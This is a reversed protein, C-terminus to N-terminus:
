NISTLGFLYNDEIRTINDTGTYEMDYTFLRDEDVPLDDFTWRLLDGYALPTTGTTTGSLTPYECASGTVSWKCDLYKYVEQRDAFSLTKDFIMIEAVNADWAAAGDNRSGIYATVGNTDMNAKGNAASTVLNNNRRIERLTNFEWVNYSATDTGWANNIQLSQPAEWRAADGGTPLRIALRDATPMHFAFQDGLSNTKSVIFVNLDDIVQDDFLSSITMQDGNFYAYTKDNETIIEPKSGDVLQVANKGKGSKDRWESILNAGNYTMTSLDSADLWLQLSETNLEANAKWKDNLYEYVADMEIETLSRNYVIIEGVEGYFREGNGRNLMDYLASTPINIQGINSDILENDVYLEQVLGMRGMNLTVIDWGGVPIGSLTNSNASYSNTADVRLMPDQASIRDLISMDSSRQDSKMLVFYTLENNESSLVADGLLKNDFRLMPQNSYYDTKFIPGNAAAQSIIKGKGSKDSWQTVRDLIDKTITATDNVDLWLDLGHIDDPSDVERLNSATYGNPVIDTISADDISSLGINNLDLLVTYKQTDYSAFDKNVTMNTPVYAATVTLSALYEKPDIAHYGIDDGIRCSVVYSGGSLGSYTYTAVGNAATQETSQPAGDLYFTVDYGALDIGTTYNSVNCTLDTSESDKIEIDSLNGADVISALYDIDFEYTDEIPVNNSDQMVNGLADTLAFYARYTGPVNDATGWHAVNWLTSLDIYSYPVVTQPGNYVETVNNWHTGNDHQTVLLVRADINFDLKHGVASPRHIKSLVSNIEVRDENNSTTDLRDARIIIRRNTATRWAPFTTTDITVICEEYDFSDVNSGYLSALDCYNGGTFTAGNYVLVELRPVNNGNEQSALDSFRSIGLNLEISADGTIDSGAMSYEESDISGDTLTGTVMFDDVIWGDDDNNKTTGFNFRFKFDDEVTFANLNVTEQQWNVQSNFSQLGTLLNSNQGGASGGRCSDDYGGNPTIQSWTNGADPSTQIIGCDDNGNTTHYMNYRHWFSAEVTNYVTLDVTEKLTLYDLYKSTSYLGVEETAWCGSGSYCGNYSTKSAPTGCEWPAGGISSELSSSDFGSCVGDDFTDNVIIYPVHFKKTGSEVDNSYIILGSKLDVDSSHSYTTGVTEIDYDIYVDTVVFTEIGTKRYNGNMDDAWIFYKYTGEQNTQTFTYTYTDDGSGSMDVYWSTGDPATINVKVDRVAENDSVYGSIDVPNTLRAPNPNANVLVIEPTVIDEAPTVTRLIETKKDTVGAYYYNAVDDGITCNINEVGLSNDAWTYNAWGTVDTTNTGMLGTENYFSVTYGNLPTALSEDVVKCSMMTSNTVHISSPDLKSEYISSFGYLTLEIKNTQNWLGADKGYISFNVLGLSNFESASLTNISYNTWDNTILMTRNSYSGLGNHELYANQMGDHGTWRAYATLAQGRYIAGGNPVDATGNNIGWSTYQPALLYDTLVNLGVDDNDFWSGGRCEDTDWDRNYDIGCRFAQLPANSTIVRNWTRTILNSTSTDERYLEIWSTGDYYFMYIRNGGGSYPNFQCTLSVTDGVGVTTANLITTKVDEYDGRGGRCNGIGSIDAEKFTTQFSEGEPNYVVAEGCDGGWYASCSMPDLIRLDPDLAIYWPRAEVYSTKNNNITYNIYSRGLSYVAPSEEPFIIGYIVKSGNTLNTWTLLQTNGVVELTANEYRSVNFEVPVVETYSFTTVEPDNSYITVISGKGGRWPDVTHVVNRIIDFKNNNDVEFYSSMTYNDTGNYATVIMDYTGEISINTYNFSYIGNDIEIIQALPTTYTTSVNNPTIIEIEVNADSVLYGESDLVVSTITVNDDTSYVSKDTNITALGIEFIQESLKPVIWDIRDYKGNNNTDVYTVKYKPDNTIDVKKGDIYHYVNPRLRTEVIDTTAEINYYHMNVDSYVKVKKNLGNETTADEIVELKPAKTEYVIEVSDQPTVALELEVSESLVPAKNEIIEIDDLQDELKDLERNLTIKEIFNADDLQTKVDVINEEVDDKQTLEHYEVFNLESNDIVVKVTSPDISNGDVVIDVIDADKSVVISDKVVVDAPLTKAWQVKQGVIATGQSTYQDIETEHEINSSDTESRIVEFSGVERVDEVFLEFFYTGREIPFFEVVYKGNRLIPTVSYIVKNSDILKFEINETDPQVTFNIEALEYEVYSELYNVDVLYEIVVSKNENISENNKNIVDEIIEDVIENNTENSDAIPEVVDVIDTTNTEDLESEVIADPDVLTFNEEVYYIVNSYNTLANVSYLGYSDIMITLESMSSDVNYTENTPTVLVLSINADAYTYNENILKSSVKFWNNLELKSTEIVLEIEPLEVYTTESVDYLVDERLVNVVVDFLGTEGLKIECSFKDKGDIETHCITIDSPSDVPSILIEVNDYVLLDNEILTIEGSIYNSEYAEDFKVKIDFYEDPVIVVNDTSNNEINTENVSTVNTNNIVPEVIEIIESVNPNNLNLEILSYNGTFVESYYTENGVYSTGKILYTETESRSDVICSYPDSGNVYLGCISIDSLNGDTFINLEVTGEISDNNEILYVNGAVFTTNDIDRIEDVTISFNMLSENSSNAISINDLINNEIEENVITDNSSNVNNVLMDVVDVSGLMDSVSENFENISSNDYTSYTNNTENMASAAHLSSTSLALALMFIFVQRVMLNFKTLNM